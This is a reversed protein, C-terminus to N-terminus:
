NNGVWPDLPELVTMSRQSKDDSGSSVSKLTITYKYIGAKTHKNLCTFSYSPGKDIVIPHCNVIEGDPKDFVIGNEAFQFNSGKPLHWTIPVSVNRLAEGFVITQQDVAIRGNVVSVAPRTIDVYGCNSCDRPPHHFFHGCGALVLTALAVVVSRLKM